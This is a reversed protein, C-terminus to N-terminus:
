MFQYICRKDVDNLGYLVEKGNGPASIVQDIIVSYYQSMVSMLYLASACIYQKSCGDTNEWVTSLSATLLKERHPILNFM